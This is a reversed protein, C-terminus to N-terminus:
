DPLSQHTASPLDLPLVIYERLLNMLWGPLGEWYRSLDLAKEPTAQSVPDHQPEVGALEWVGATGVLDINKGPQNDWAPLSDPRAAKLRVVAVQYDAQIEVGAGAIYIQTTTVQAHGVETVLIQAV